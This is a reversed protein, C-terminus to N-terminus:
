GLKGRRVENDNDWAHSKGRLYSFLTISLVNPYMQYFYHMSICVVNYM